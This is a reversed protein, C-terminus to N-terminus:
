FLDHIDHVGLAFVEIGAVVFGGEADDGAGGTLHTQFDGVLKSTVCSAQSPRRAILTSTASSDVHFGCTPRSLSADKDEVLINGSRCRSRCTATTGSSITFPASISNTARSCTRM